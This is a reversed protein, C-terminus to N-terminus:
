LRDVIVKLAAPEATITVPTTCPVKDDCHVSLRRYSEIRLERAQRIQVKPLTMHMQARMARYYPLLERRTLDGLVVVDLLGDTLKAGPAIALGQAMRFTNAAACFVAPQELKDGDITLRLRHSHLGCILRFITYFGKLINKNTRSGYIGLASAFLGVGASEAFYRGCVRGLDVSRVEGEVLVRLASPLDLPLRLASAFNNATGQPVIGLATNSRASLQIATAVTGDGGAVAVRATGEEVLQKLKHIMQWESGTGIVEIDLGLHQVLQQMDAVKPTWHFRGARDNMLITCASM